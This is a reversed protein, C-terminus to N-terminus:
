AVARARCAVMPARLAKDVWEQLTYDDLRRARTQLSGGSWVIWYWPGRKMVTCPSGAEALAERIDATTRPLRLNWPLRTSHPQPEERALWEVDGHDFM